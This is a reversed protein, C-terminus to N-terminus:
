SVGCSLFRGVIGRAKWGLDAAFFSVEFMGYGGGVVERGERDGSGTLVEIREKGEVVSADM